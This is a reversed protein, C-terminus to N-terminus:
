NIHIIINPMNIAELNGRTIVSMIGSKIWYKQLAM